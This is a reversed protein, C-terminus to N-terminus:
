WVFLLESPHHIQIKERPLFISCCIELDFHFTAIEVILSFFVSEPGNHGACQCVSSSMGNILYIIKFESLQILEVTQNTRVSSLGYVFLMFNVEFLQAVRVQQLM